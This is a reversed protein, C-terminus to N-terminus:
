GQSHEGVAMELVRLLESTTRTLVRVRLPVRHCLGALVLYQLM